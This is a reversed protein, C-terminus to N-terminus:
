LAHSIQLKFYDLLPEIKKKKSVHHIRCSCYFKLALVEGNFNLDTELSIHLFCIM